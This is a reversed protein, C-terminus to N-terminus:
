TLAERAAEARKSALQLLQPTATLYWYTSSPAVHGLYTSLAPLRAEVDVGERYWRVLTNVAFSHRLDHLRPRPRQKALGAQELLRLFDWHVNNYILRTGALSLLFSPSRAQALRQDRERAYRCLAQITTPHLLLERAKDFKGHRIVLVGQHCDVDDRDLAIAEGVRMGTVALLGILTAYTARKLGHRTSAARMLTGIEDETYIHPSRRARPSAPLLERDPVQTRPDLASLYRAFGRVMGLRAHSRKLSGGPSACAWRIALPASIYASGQSELFAVFQALLHGERELTFGLTRRLRLYEDLVRNLRSM